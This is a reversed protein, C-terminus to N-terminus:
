STNRTALKNTKLNYLLLTVTGTNPADSRVETAKNSRHLSHHPNERSPLWQRTCM